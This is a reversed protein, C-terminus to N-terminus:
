LVVGNVELVQVVVKSGDDIGLRDRDSLPIVGRGNADITMSFPLNIM